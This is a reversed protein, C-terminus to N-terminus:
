ASRLPRVGTLSALVLQSVNMVYHAILPPWISGTILFLVALYIAAVTTGAIGWWGQPWHLLGFFLALPWLLLWPSVLWTLGALPLWRFLLEELGAALRLAPLVGFWEQRSAPLICRLMRDSAISEGWLRVVFIGLLTLLLALGLGALLGTILDGAAFQLAAPGPGLTLGLAVSLLVLLLRVLNDPWRLLLNSPPTWDRLLLGSRVTSIAVILMLMALGVVFLLPRM